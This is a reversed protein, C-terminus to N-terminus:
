IHILSLETAANICPGAVLLDMSSSTHSHRRQHEVRVTRKGGVSCPPFAIVRFEKTFGACALISVIGLIFRMVLFLVSKWYWPTFAMLKFTAHKTNRFVIHPFSTQAQRESELGMCFVM